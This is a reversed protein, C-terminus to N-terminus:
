NDLVRHVTQSLGHADARPMPYYEARLTQALDALAPNPSRAVDMVVSKVGLGSIWEAMLAADEAAKQRDASGDLSINARGDTLLALVPTKGQSLSKQALIGAAQLGGALPTGGGGPLASLRRKTQVLSRTPPLMLDGSAGRFAILAVYDRRAYAEALLLEVAGKAEALRAMAASGSADVIFIVLREARQEYRKLHIDSPFITITSRQPKRAARLKQWPAASRLTAIVDVRSQGDLRGPRSPAPRGRAKSKRSQGAGTGAASRQAGTTALRSLFDSPLLAKVAEILLEQPLESLDTDQASEAREQASDQEPEPTQEPPAEPAEPMLTARSPYILAAAIEIDEASLASRGALAAHTRACTLAFQAARASHIGFRAALDVLAAIDEPRASVVALQEKPAPEFKVGELDALSVDELDVWFGVRDQLAQPATEEDTGEDFVILPAIRGDDLAQGLKAALAGDCREAMCLQAWASRALLGQAYVLKQQQLTQVLDLGGFLQEDSMNPYIKYLAPAANQIIEILRDRIPGSRARIVLGKLGTPNASLLRLALLTKVWSDFGQTM